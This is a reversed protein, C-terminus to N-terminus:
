CIFFDAATNEHCPGASFSQCFATSCCLLVGTPVLWGQAWCLWQTEAPFPSHLWPIRTCQSCDLELFNPMISIFVRPWQLKSATGAHELSLAPVRQEWPSPGLPSLRGQLVEKEVGHCLLQGKGQNGLSQQRPFKSWSNGPILIQKNEFSFLRLVWLTAKHLINRQLPTIQIMSNSRRRLFKSRFVAHLMFAAPLVYFTCSCSLQPGSVMCKRTM